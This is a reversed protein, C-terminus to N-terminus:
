PSIILGVNGMQIIVYITVIGTCACIRKLLGEITLKAAVRNESIANNAVCTYIGSDGNDVNSIKLISSEIDNLIKIRNGDRLLHGDKTWSFTVDKGQALECVITAM